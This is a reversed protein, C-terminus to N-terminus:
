ASFLPKFDKNFLPTVAPAPLAKSFLFGQVTNCGLKNLVKLQTTSEVGEAIVKLDLSHAMAIIATVIATDGSSESIERIFARDIKLSHIPFQKLYSLSSYGTGFDDISLRVGMETFAKMQELMKEVDHMALSETIELELYSPDLQTKHLIFAINDLLGEHSLQRASLNVSVSLHALGRDHWAKLQRCATELVWEGIPVILGTDEALPIFDMPPILGLEPHNWRLLAEVGTIEQTDFSVIPQYNLVFEDREIAKRMDNELALNSSTFDDSIKSYMVYNNTGLEKARYMATDARAVLTEVDSGDNPYIAVGVSPTIHSEYEDFHFPEEFLQIIENSFLEADKPHLLNPVIITYEDGGIRSVTHDEHKNRALRQGIAKLLQDGVEHGLADNIMRFRDIDILLLALMENNRKASYLSNHLIQKFYTRNPLGTLEDHTAMHSIKQQTQKWETIDKGVIYMGAIANNIIIPSSKILFDIRHGLKHTIGIEFSQTEGKYSKRFLGSAVLKSEETLLPIFHSGILENKSYGVLRVTAPNVNTFRGRLDLSCIIDSNHEFLSRYVEEKEELAKKSQQLKNFFRSIFYSAVGATILTYVLNKFLQFNAFTNLDKFYSASLTDTVYIWSVSILIYIFAITITTRKM